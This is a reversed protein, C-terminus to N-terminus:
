IKRHQLGSLIHGRATEGGEQGCGERQQRALMSRELYSNQSGM